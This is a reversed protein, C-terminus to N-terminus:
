SFLFTKVVDIQDQHLLTPAHGVDDFTVLKAHPGRQTMDIAVEPMLVDSDKGRLLLTQCTIADYAQWAKNQLTQMLEPRMVEKFPQAIHIDHHRRWTGDPHQRLVDRCFKDWELETHEGFTSSLNRIYSQAEFFTPFSIDEGIYAAIRNIATFPIMPSIDNLILKQIPSYPLSALGMGIMGGMSTGLYHIPEDHTHTVRAILTVIDAIYQTIQYHQPLTLKDSRGRGVIDPCIVRYDSSLAKALVDFDDSVRTIGHVCVLIHPNNPAGWEKYAMRHLGGPSLCQVYKIQAVDTTKDM